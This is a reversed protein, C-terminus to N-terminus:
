RTTVSMAHFDFRGLLAPKSLAPKSNMPDLPYLMGPTLTPFGWVDGTERNIVIRGDGLSSGDPLRLNVTGPEIYFPASSQAEVATPRVVPQLAILAMLIAIVTLVFKTYLDPRNSTGGSYVERRISFLSNDSEYLLRARSRALWRV